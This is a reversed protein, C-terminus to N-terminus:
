FKWYGYVCRTGGRSCDWTDHLVGEVFAAMHKSLSLVLRGAPLEDARLHVKCGSGITMCPVWVAGLEAMYDKFWKRQVYIGHAASRKQKPVNKSKRQGATGNSLRRYVENYPRESAIAIARCVCDDARGKFGAAKRRGDDRIFEPATTM